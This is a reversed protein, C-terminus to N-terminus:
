SRGKSPHAVPDAVHVALATEVRDLADRVTHGSNPKLEVEILGLREMVGPQAARGPRAAQGYWDERFEDNQRSLKRLPKGVYAGLAAAVAVAGAAGGAIASVTSIDV